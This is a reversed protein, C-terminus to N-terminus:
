LQHLAQELDRVVDEPHEIGVSLRILNERVGLQERRSPPLERHSATAPHTALTYIEGRSTARVCMELSNLCAFAAERGEAALELSVL